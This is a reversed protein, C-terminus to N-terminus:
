EYFTDNEEHEKAYRAIDQEKYDTLLDDVQPELLFAINILDERLKTLFATSGKTQFRKLNELNDSLEDSSQKRGNRQKNVQEWIGNVYAIENALLNEDTLQSM